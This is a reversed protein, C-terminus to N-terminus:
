TLLVAFDPCYEIAGSKKQNEVVNKEYMWVNASKKSDKCFLKQCNYIIIFKKL